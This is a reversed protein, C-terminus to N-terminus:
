FQLEPFYVAQIVLDEVGEVGTDQEVILLAVEFNSLLKSVM